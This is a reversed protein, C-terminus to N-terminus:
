KRRLSRISPRISRSNKPFPRVSMPMSIMPTHAARNGTFTANGPASGTPASNKSGAHAPHIMHIIMSPQIQPHFAMHLHALSSPTRRPHSDHYARPNRSPHPKRFLLRLSRSPFVGEPWFRSRSARPQLSLRHAARVPARLRSPSLRPHTRRRGRGRHMAAAQRKHQRSNPIVAYTCAWLPLVELHSLLLHM